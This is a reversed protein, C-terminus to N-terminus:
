KEQEEEAQEAAKIEPSAGVNEGIQTQLAEEMSINSDQQSDVRRKVPM